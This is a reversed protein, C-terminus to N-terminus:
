TYKGIDQYVGREWEKYGDKDGLCKLGVRM